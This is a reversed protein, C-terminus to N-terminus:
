LRPTSLLIIINMGIYKRYIQGHTMSYQLSFTLVGIGSQVSVRFVYFYLVTVQLTCEWLRKLFDLGILGAGLGVLCVRQGLVTWVGSIFWM